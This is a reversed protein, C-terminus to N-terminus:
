PIAYVEVLVHGTGGASGRVHASYSGPMLTVLAAADHSQPSLPFAGAAEAAAALEAHNPAQGWDDNILIPTPGAFLTLVPNALLNSVGYAKLGPGVARILVTRARDGALAFGAILLDDGGAADARASLNVLRSGTPTVNYVEVLVIGREGDTGRVHASYVGPSFEGLYAADLGGARLPFAGASAAARVLETVNPAQEWDENADRPTSEAYVTLKPDPLPHMVAYESLTPGVARLLLRATASAKAPEASFIPSSITLILTAIFPGVRPRHLQLRPPFKRGPFNSSPRSRALAM